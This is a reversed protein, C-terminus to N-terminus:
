FEPKGNLADISTIFFTLTTQITAVFTIIFWQIAPVSSNLSLKLPRLVVHLITPRSTYSKPNSKNAQNTLKESGQSTKNALEDILHMNKIIKIHFLVSNKKETM